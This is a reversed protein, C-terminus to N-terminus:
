SSRLCLAYSFRYFVHYRFLFIRTLKLVKGILCSATKYNTCLWKKLRQIETKTERDRRETGKRDWKNQPSVPQTLSAQKVGKKEQNFKM